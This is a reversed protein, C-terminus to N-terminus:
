RDTEGTQVGEDRHREVYPIATARSPSQSVSQSVIAEDNETGIHRQKSPNSKAAIVAVIFVFNQPPQTCPNLGDCLEVQTHHQFM